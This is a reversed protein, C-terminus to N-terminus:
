FKPLLGALELASMIGFAILFTVVCVFFRKRATKGRETLKDAKCFVANSFEGDKRNAAAVNTWYFASLVSTFAIAFLICLVYRAHEKDM